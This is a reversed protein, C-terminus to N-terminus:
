LRKKAKYWTSYETTQQEKLNPNQIWLKYTINGKWDGDRMIRHKLNNKQATMVLEVAKDSNRKKTRGFFDFVDIGDTKKGKHSKSNTFTM